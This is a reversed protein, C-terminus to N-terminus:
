WSVDDDSSIVQSLLKKRDKPDTCDLVYDVLRFDCFPSYVELGLSTFKKSFETADSFDGGHILNDLGYGCMFKKHPTKEKLFKAFDDTFVLSHRYETNMFTDEDEGELRRVHTYYQLNDNKFYKSMMISGDSTSFLAADVNNEM